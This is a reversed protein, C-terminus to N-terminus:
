FYKKIKIRQRKWLCAHKMFPLSKTKNQQLIELTQLYPSNKFPHNLNRGFDNAGEKIYRNLLPNKLFYFLM